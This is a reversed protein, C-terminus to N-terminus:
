LACWCTRWSSAVLPSHLVVISPEKCWSILQEVFVAAGLQQSQSLRLLHSNGFGFQGLVCWDCCFWQFDSGSHSHFRCRDIQSQRGLFERADHAYVSRHAPGLGLGCRISHTQLTFQCCLLWCVSGLLAEMTRSEISVLFDAIYTYLPKPYSSQLLFYRYSRRNCFCCVQASFTYWAASLFISTFANSVLSYSLATAVGQKAVRQRLANLNAATSQAAEVVRELPNSMTAATETNEMTISSALLSNKGIFSATAPQFVGSAPTVRLLASSSATPPTLTSQFAEGSWLLQCAVCLALLSATTSKMM